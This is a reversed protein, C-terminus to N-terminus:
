HKSGCPLRVAFGPLAAPRPSGGNNEELRKSAAVNDFVRGGTEATATRAPLAIIGCLV